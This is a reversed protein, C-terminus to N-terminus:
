SAGRFAALSDGSVPFEFGRFEHEAALEAANWGDYHVSQGNAYAQIDDGMYNSATSTM